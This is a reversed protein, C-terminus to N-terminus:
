EFEPSSPRQIGYRTLIEREAKKVSKDELAIIIGNTMEIVTFDDAGDKIASVMERMDGIIKGNVKEVILNRYKQYGANIEHALVNKLFVVQRREASPYENKLAHILQIPAKTIWKAGWERLYNKTLPMFVLGGYIFYSPKVDHEMPAMSIDKKLPAKLALLKKDRIVNIKLTDGLHHKQVLYNSSVRIDENLSVAGDDAIPVSDISVLVDEKEVIGWFSSGYVVRNVLVGTQGEKLGKYSRLSKNESIQAVIGDAPFGDYKGDEIDKLFHRVIPVPIIYGINDGSRLVQMAVGVVKDGKLVPGGSNGANIAADIQVGLLDFGSHSYKMQEIRSVIGQTISVESGGKPFGLVSVSDRLEPLGGLELPKTSDFFSEDKVKLVALDCQHGVSDIYAIYKKPDNAKKIEIFVAGNIVHANTLIRKGEIVLGSGIGRRQPKYQWPLYYSPTKSVVFIKVVSKTIRKLDIQTSATSPAASLYILTSCFFFIGAAHSTPFNNKFM